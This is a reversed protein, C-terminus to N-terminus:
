GKAKLSKDGAYKQFLPLLMPYFSADLSCYHDERPSFHRAPPPGEPQLRSFLDVYNRAQDELKYGTEILKRSEIGLRKRKEKNFTLDIIAEGFKDTDFAPILRGTEHDSIVDPMGGIDFAIVPTGCAMSELLTNPLNDEISPLVFFDSANYIDRLEYDNSIKGFSIYPINVSEIDSSPTGFCLVRIKEKKVLKRFKRSKYCTELAELLKDFGKRKINGSPAGFLITVVDNPINYKKKSEGKDGVPRFIDTEVANPIVEITLEKFLFSERGVRSLWKSPTVIFLKSKDILSRKHTLVKNPLHHSDDKLQPCGLCDTKYKDCGASYHCGGTFAWQDHLTWVVPKGLLLLKRISENSQFSAIFHLNIIDAQKIIELGSLDYGPYPFTFKTNTLPTRNQNIYQRQIANVTDLDISGPKNESAKVQLVRDDHTKKDKVLMFSDIGIMNLGKHLRYSAKAAGGWFDRNSIIATLM